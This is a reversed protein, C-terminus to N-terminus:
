YCDELIIFFNKKIVVLEKIKDVRNGNCVMVYFNVGLIM